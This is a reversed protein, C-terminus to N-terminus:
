LRVMARCFVTWVHGRQTVAAETTPSLLLPLLVMCLHQQLLQMMEGALTAAPDHWM